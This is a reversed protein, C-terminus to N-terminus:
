RAWWLFGFIGVWLVFMFHWYLATVDVVIRRSEIPKHLVSITAAYFLVVMGGLLHVAHAATLLYVFSSSASTALYFGRLELARWAMGQGLLFSSGLILTLALWPVYRENGLSVGPISKIPALAARHTIQRRALEATVSSALLLATNIWLLGLPLQVTIWERVYTDTHEDLTRFASRYFYTAAIVLFFMAIPALVFALALRARRLRQGYDPPGDSRGGDGGGRRVPPPTGGGGRGARLEADLVSQTLTAMGLKGKALRRFPKGEDDTGRHGFVIGV